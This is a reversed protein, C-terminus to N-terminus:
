IAMKGNDAAQIWYEMAIDARKYHEAAFPPLAYEVFGESAYLGLAVQLKRNSLLYVRKAGVETAKKMAAKVLARGIGKGKTDPAVGMKALEYEGVGEPILACTGVPKGELLAMFIYGGKNLITAEPNDFIAQDRPEVTFHEELWVRNFYEFAERHEPAYPVIVINNSVIADHM